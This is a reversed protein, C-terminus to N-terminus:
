RAAMADARKIRRARSPGSSARVILRPSLVVQRRPLSFEASRELVLRAAAEGMGLTDVSISTLAPTWLAAEAIDDCGAVAFDRGPELGLQRLGLMVGFAIVDNFCVSATPPDRTALLTKVAQAGFSRTSPGELILERDVAIGSAALAQEYGQRREVGTSILENAGVLAIRRHGLSVLHETSLFLGLRHDNGAYDLGSGPVNRSILVCPMGFETLRRLTRPKSGQTPCIILGEANYERMTAIFGEQVAPDESSNSLFVTRGAKVLAREIAATLESFYPNVLETVAVGVTQTRQTRFNAASRNYVYGLAAMSERVRLRTREAVLPSKRLVLSATARSVGAHVALERLTPRAIVQPPKRERSM